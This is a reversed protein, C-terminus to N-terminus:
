LIHDLPHYTRRKFHAIHKTTPKGLLNVLIGQYGLQSEQTDPDFLLFLDCHVVFTNENPTVDRIQQNLIFDNNLKFATTGKGGFVGGLTQIIEASGAKM